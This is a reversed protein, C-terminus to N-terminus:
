NPTFSAAFRSTTYQAPGARYGAGNPWMIMLLSGCGRRFANIAKAGRRLEDTCQRAEEQKRFVERAKVKLAAKSDGRLIAVALAQAQRDDSGPRNRHSM